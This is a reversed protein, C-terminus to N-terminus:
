RQITQGFWDQLCRVFGEPPPAQYSGNPTALRWAHLLQAPTYPTPSGGYKRDGALPHGIASLHARIQHSRGTGLRISLLTYKRGSPANGHALARYHTVAIKADDPSDSAKANKNGNQIDNTPADCPVIAATKTSADKTYV